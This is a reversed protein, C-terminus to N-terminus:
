ENNLLIKLSEEFKKRWHEGAVNPAIEYELGKMIVYLDENSRYWNVHDHWIKTIPYQGLLLSKAVTEPFGDFENTRLCIHYQSIKNNFEEESVKGHYFLNDFGKYTVRTGHDSIFTTGKKAEEVGFIHFRFNPLKQALEVMVPVGYEEERGAHACIWVHVNSAIKFTPWYRNPDDFIMPCLAAKIGMDYLASYEVMTECYHKAEILPLVFRWISKQLALVDSGCWFVKKKGLQGCFKIYDGVHYMGIFLVNGFMSWQHPLGLRKDLKERFNSVSSSCLYTWIKALKQENAM